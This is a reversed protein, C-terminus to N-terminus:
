EYQDELDDASPAPDASEVGASFLVIGVLFVAAIVAFRWGVLADVVSFTAGVVAMSVFAGGVRRLIQNTPM